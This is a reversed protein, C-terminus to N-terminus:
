LKDSIDAIIPYIKDAYATAVGAGYAIYCAGRGLTPQVGYFIDLIQPIVLIGEQSTLRGAAGFGVGLLYNVKMENATEGGAFLIRSVLSDKEMRSIAETEM